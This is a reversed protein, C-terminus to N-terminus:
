RPAPSTSSWNTVNCRPVRQGASLIWCRGTWTGTAWAPRPAASSEGEALTIEGPLLLEGGGITTLGPAAARRRRGHGPRLAGARGPRSLGPLRRRPLPPLPVRFSLCDSSYEPRATAWRRVIVGRVLTNGHQVDMTLWAVGRAQARGILARLLASGIGRGQWADAVVVAVDATSGRGPGARDVAMAHGIIVGGDTAVLADAGAAGALRRLMSGTPTVEAFFRLYRTRRSLGAFFEGLAALDTPQAPRIAPLAPRQTQDQAPTPQAASSAPRRPRDQPEVPRIM